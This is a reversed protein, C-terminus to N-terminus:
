VAFKSIRKTNTHSEQKLIDIKLDGCLYLSKHSKFPKLLNDLYDNPEQIATGPTRYVCSIVINKGAKNIIEIPLSELLNDIANSHSVLHKVEFEKAVYLAVGGARKGNRYSNFMDYGPLTYEYLESANDLGLKLFQM